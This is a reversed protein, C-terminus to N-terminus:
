KQGRGQELVQRHALSDAWRCRPVASLRYNRRNFFHCGHESAGKVRTAVSQTDDCHSQATEVPECKCCSMTM